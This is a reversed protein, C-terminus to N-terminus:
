NLKHISHHTLTLKKGAQIDTIELVMQQFATKREGHVSRVLEASIGNRSETLNGRGRKETAERLWYCTRRSILYHHRRLKSQQKV